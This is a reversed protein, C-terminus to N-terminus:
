SSRRVHAVLVVYRAPDAVPLPLPRPRRKRPRARIEHPRPLNLQWKWFEEGITPGGSPPLAGSEIRRRGGHVNRGNDGKGLSPQAQRERHEGAWGNGHREHSCCTDTWTDHSQLPVSSLRAKTRGNNSIRGHATYRTCPHPSLDTCGKKRCKTVAVFRDWFAGLAWWLGVPAKVCQLHMEFCM